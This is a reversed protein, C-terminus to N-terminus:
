KAEKWKRVTRLFAKARAFASILIWSEGTIPAFLEYLQYAFEVQQDPTLHTEAAWMDNLNGCYNRVETQGYPCSGM